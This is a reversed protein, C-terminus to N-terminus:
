VVVEKLAARTKPGAIGDPELSHNAQFARVAARTKPGYSGDISLTYGAKKLMWQVWRVNDGKDGCRVASKPETYPCRQSGGFTSVKTVSSGTNKAYYKTPREGVHVFRKKTYLIIGRFGVSEAAKAVEEPEIGSVTIDAACGKVHYSGAAGGVAKNHKSCRYGSTVNISKGGLKKRLAELRTILGEDVLTSSCCTKGHCDFEGLVFHEALRAAAGKKYKKVAM